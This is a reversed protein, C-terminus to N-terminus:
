GVNEGRAKAFRNATERDLVAWWDPNEKQVRLARRVAVPHRVASKLLRLWHKPRAHRRLAALEPCVWSALLLENTVPPRQEDCHTWLAALQSENMRAHRLFTAALAVLFAGWAGTDRSRATHQTISYTALPAPVYLLPHPFMRERFAEMGSFLMPPTPYAKGPRSRLLMAGNAHVGGMVQRRDGWHIQRSSANLGELSNVCRDTEEFHGDPKQLVIRQNCWALTVEPHAELEKVMTDLFAPEWTNDDELISVFPESTPRYFLNFTAVPGLNREHTVLQIRRDGLSAVFEAPFGDAPDDNHVECVWDTLSQARLSAIARPLLERRRYTPVFVRVRAPGLSEDPLLSASTSVITASM